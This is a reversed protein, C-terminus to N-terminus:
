SVPVDRSRYLDNKAELDREAAAWVESTAEFARSAHEAAVAAFASARGTLHETVLRAVLAADVPARHSRSAAALAAGACTGAITTAQAGDAAGSSGLAFPLARVRRERVIARAADPL